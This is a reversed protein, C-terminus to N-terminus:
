ISIGSKRLRDALTRWRKIQVPLDRIRAAIATKPDTDWPATPLDKKALVYAALSLYVKPQRGRSRGTGPRVVTHYIDAFEEPADLLLGQRALLTLGKSRTVSDLEPGGLRRNCRTLEEATLLPYWVLAALAPRLRAPVISLVAAGDERLIVLGPQEAAPVHEWEGRWVRDISAALRDWRAQQQPTMSSRMQSEVVLPTPPSLKHRARHKQFLASELSTYSDPVSWQEFGIFGEGHTISVPPPKSTAGITMARVPFLEALRLTQSSM